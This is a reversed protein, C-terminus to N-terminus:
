QMSFLWPPDTQTLRFPAAAEIRCISPPPALRRLRREDREGHKVKVYIGVVVIRDRPVCQMREAHAPLPPSIAAFDSTISYKVMVSSVLSNPIEVRVM